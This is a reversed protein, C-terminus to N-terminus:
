KEGGDGEAEAQTDQAETTKRMVEEARTTLFEEFDTGLSNGGEYEARLRAAYIEIEALDGESIEGLGTHGGDRVAELGSHEWPVTEVSDIHGEVPVSELVTPAILEEAQESLEGHAGEGLQGGVTGENALQIAVPDPVEVTSVDSPPVETTAGPQEETTPLRERDGQEALQGGAIEPGVRLSISLESRGDWAGLDCTAASCSSSAAGGMTVQIHLKRKRHGQRAGNMEDWMAWDEWSRYQQATLRQSSSGCDAGPKPPGEREDGHEDRRDLRRMHEEWEEEAKAQERDEEMGREIEQQERATLCQLPLPPAAHLDHELASLLDGWWGRVFQVDEDTSEIDPPGDEVHGALTAEADQVLEHLGFRTGSSIGFRLVLRTLIARARRSASRKEVNSLRFNMGQLVLRTRGQQNMMSTLTKQMLNAVEADEELTAEDPEADHSTTSTWEGEQHRLGPPETGDRVAIVKGNSDRVCRCWYRDGQVWQAAMMGMPHQLEWSPKNNVKWGKRRSPESAGEAFRAMYAHWLHAEMDRVVDFIEQSVEQNPEVELSVHEGLVDMLVNAFVSYHEDGRAQIREAAQKWVKRDVLSQGADGRLQQALTRWWTLRRIEEGIYEPTPTGETTSGHHKNWVAQEADPAVRGTDQSSSTSSSSGSFTPPDGPRMEGQVLLLDDTDQVGDTYVDEEERKWMGVQLWYSSDSDGDDVVVEVTDGEVTDVAEVTNEGPPEEGGRRTEPCTSSPTPERDSVERGSTSGSARDPGERGLTSASARSERRSRSTAQTAARVLELVEDQISNLCLPLSRRMLGIARPTLTQITEQITHQISEPVVTPLSNGPAETFGLLELWLEMAEDTTTPGEDPHATPQPAEHLAGRPTLWVTSETVLPRSRGTRRPTRSTDSSTAVMAVLEDEDVGVDEETRPPEGGLRARKHAQSTQTPSTGATGDNSPRGEPPHQRSLLLDRRRLAIAEARAHNRVRAVAAEYIGRELIRVTESWEPSLQTGGRPRHRLSVRVCATIAQYTCGVYCRDVLSDGRLAELLERLRYAIEGAIEPEGVQILQEFSRTMEFVADDRMRIWNEMEQDALDLHQPTSRPGTSTRQAEDRCFAPTSLSGGTPESLSTCSTSTLEQVASCGLSTSSCDEGSDNLVQAKLLPALMHIMFSLLAIMAFGGSGRFAHICQMAVDLLSSATLGIHQPAGDVNTM